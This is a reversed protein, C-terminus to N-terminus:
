ARTGTTGETELAIGWLAGKRVEQESSVKESLSRRVVWYLVGGVGAGTM